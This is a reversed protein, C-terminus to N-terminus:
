AGVLLMGNVIVEALLNNYLFTLEQLVFIQNLQKHNRLYHLGKLFDEVFTNSRLDDVVLTM